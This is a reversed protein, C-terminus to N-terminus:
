TSIEPDAANGGTSHGQAPPRFSVARQRLSAADKAGQESRYGPAPKPEFLSRNTGHREDGFDFGRWGNRMALELKEISKEPGWEAFKKLQKGLQTETLPKKIEKRHKKWELWVKRFADTRLIEPLEEDRRSETVAKKGVRDESLKNPPNVGKKLVPNGGLRGNEIAKLRESEDSVMRRSYIVGKSDRSFVRLTELEALLPTVEAPPAGIAKAIHEATMPDGNPLELFGRRPCDHMLDLMNRWLGQAALSCMRADTTSRWWDGPFWFYGPPRKSKKSAM